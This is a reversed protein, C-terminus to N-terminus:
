CKEPACVLKEAYIKRLHDIYIDRKAFSSILNLAPATNTLLQIEQNLIARVKQVLDMPNNLDFYVAFERAVERLVPIDSLIAPLGCAIAELLSLPQGEFFSSMIFADYTPLVKDLDHRSGLLQIKLHHKDIEEQLENRLSGEGYIDLTVNGPMSKFAEILYPYNKQYRLNGVAVLRLSDTALSTKLSEHFFADNIFNYLVTYRGKIGVWKDFDHLVENSVAIIHHRKRYSIKDIFLSVRKRSYNDLSSIVHLSNILPIHAPV